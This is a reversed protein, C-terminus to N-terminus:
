TSGVIRGVRLSIGVSDPVVDYVIMFQWDNCCNKLGSYNVDMLTIEHAIKGNRATLPVTGHGLVQTTKGGIGYVIANKMPQFMTFLKQDNM